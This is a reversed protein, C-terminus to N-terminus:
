SGIGEWAACARLVLRRGLLYAAERRAGLDAGGAGAWVGADVLLGRLGSTLVAHDRMWRLVRPAPQELADVAALVEAVAGSRDFLAAAELQAGLGGGVGRPIDGWGTMPDRVRVTQAPQSEVVPPSLPDPCDPRLEALIRRVRVLEPDDTARRARAGALDLPSPAPPPATEVPAVYVLRPARRPAAQASRATPTSTQDDPESRPSQRPEYREGCDCVVADGTEVARLRAVPCIDCDDIRVTDVSRACVSMADPM